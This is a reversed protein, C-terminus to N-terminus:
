PWIAGLDESEISFAPCSGDGNGSIGGSPFCEIECTAAHVLVDFRDCCDSTYVYYLDGDWRAERVEIVDEVGASECPMGEPGSGCAALLLLPILRTM